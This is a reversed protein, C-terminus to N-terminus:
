KLRIWRVMERLTPKKGYMLIGVRYIRGSLWILTLATSYLLTLSVIEQWLPVHFPIRVMMTMPSTLPIFSAWVALPGDANDVSGIAAYLGFTMVMMIPMMFQSSDEPENVAAGIAAFISAFLLYGGIFYLTFCIALEALPLNFLATFVEHVMNANEGTTAAAQSMDAATLGMAAGGIALLAAILAGWIVIQVIGVLAVGIIKGLMLQFPKVSSVILEVIRNTKEEMVSQMVVAGYTMVFLYILFTTVFGAAVAVDSNSVSAEGEANYKMTAVDVTTQVDEIVKDLNPIGADQLKEQRVCDNLTGKIDSLLGSPVENRSYVTVAKPTDALRGSIVIVAEYPSDDAYLKKDRGDPVSVFRYAPSNKFHRLYLGTKDAVGVAKQTGDKISAFWIPVFVLAAFLLPTLLTLLIFSKKRVRVSFERRIVLLLNNM